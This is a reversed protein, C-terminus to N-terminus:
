FLAILSLFNPAGAHAGIVIVSRCHFFITVAEQEVKTILWFNPLNERKDSLHVLWEYDEDDNSVDEDYGSTKKKLNRNKKSLDFVQEM